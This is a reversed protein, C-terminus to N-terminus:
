VLFSSFLAWLSGGGGVIFFCFQFFMIIVTPCYAKKRQSGQYWRPWYGPILSLSFKRILLKGMVCFPSHVLVMMDYSHIPLSPGTSVWRPFSINKGLWCLCSSTIACVCVFSSLCLSWFVVICQRQDWNQALNFFLFNVILFGGCGAM